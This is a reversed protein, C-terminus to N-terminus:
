PRLWQEPNLKEKERRLQFHLLTAGGRSPDSRVTGLAQLATVEDGQRVLVQSLHCYVSIYSGHRVLVHHLGGLQFVAVVRGAFISRAQAGPQGQIDIGKSDLRVGRLGAVDYQGFHGVVVCPGTLPMPLRGRHSAFDGSLRPDAPTAPTSTTPTSSQHGSQRSRAAERRAQAERRSREIEAAILRDIRADLQRAERRQRSVEGQLSRQRQQLRSVLQQQQRQQQELRTSEEQRLRLTEEQAQRTAELRTRQRTVEAQRRLIDEGQLRQYTAYERVYRLRRYTQSLNDASLIFMLRENIGRQRHLYQVSSDYRRRRENLDRQLSQLRTQLTRLERDLRSVDDTLSRIFRRREEMQATLSTLQSLQSRVDRRTGQLLSDTRAMEQRLGAQRSQLERILPTTQASLSLSFLCFFLILKGNVMKISSKRHQLFWLNVRIFENVM